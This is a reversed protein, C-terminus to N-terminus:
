IVYCKWTNYTKFIIESPKAKQCLRKGNIISHLSVRDRMTGGIYSIGYKFHTVISGRRFGMSRTSGYSKRIGGKSPQFVHLQRRHLRIPSICLLKTNDPKSHGGVIDNALVWSDVCHAEFIEALKAKTKYLGLSDRLSKTEWGQKLELSELKRLESYFWNKGAELISFSAQTSKAKIDEVVYNTIPYMKTLWNCIRLKWEWRARTSPALANNKKRNHKNKRCPTKRSRRTRRMNRRTEVAKKVWAVADANINLFTHAKSKVTFGEKKSGPDIGVAISQFNRSSPEKNLRICFMGKKWFFTAKKSEIMKRARKESCPMLPIKNSDVVPVM